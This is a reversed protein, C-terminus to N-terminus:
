IFRVELTALEAVRAELRDGREVAGVGAPTGTFVLDGARLEIFRSLNAIIESVNWIMDALDGSQRVEENVELEIRGAALHGVESVPHIESIPASRDFGKAMDWPRRKDKLESQLDRRTMDLGVAYGFVHELAQAPAIQAGPMGIAAVLEVEPHLDHTLAPYPIDGGGPVAADAPKCFFFPAERTPDAGMERAHEAYNRGVCFIRRVPFFTDVGAIPIAPVPAPPFAFRVM